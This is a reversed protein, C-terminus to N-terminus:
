RIVSMIHADKIAWVKKKLNQYLHLLSVETKIQRNSSVGLSKVWHVYNASSNLSEVQLM